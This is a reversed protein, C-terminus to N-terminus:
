QTREVYAGRTVKPVGKGSEPVLYQKVKNRISTIFAQNDLIIRADPEKGEDRRAIEQFLEEVRREYKRVDEPTRAQSAAAINTAISDSYSKRLSDM